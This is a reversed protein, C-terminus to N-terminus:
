TAVKTAGDIRWWGGEVLLFLVFFLLYQPVVINFMWAIPWTSFACALGTMLDSGHALARDFLFKTMWTFIALVLILAFLGGQLGVALYTNDVVVPPTASFRSNQVLGTGFLASAAGRMWVSGWRLWEEYRSDMSHISGLHTGDVFSALAPALLVILAAVALYAPLVSMRYPRTERVYLIFLTCVSFGVCLYVARTLTSYAAALGALASLVLLIQRPGSRQLAAALCFPVFFTLFAGFTLASSFLSFARIRGFFNWSHVEFYGGSSKTAILPNQLGFQLLGLVIIVVGLCLISRQALRGHIRGRESFCFPSILFFFYLADYSVSLRILDIDRVLSLYVLDLFFYTVTCGWLLLMGAPVSLRGRLLTGGVLALAFTLKLTVSPVLVHDAFLLMQVRPFVANFILMLCLVYAALGLVSRLGDPPAPHGYVVSTAERPFRSEGQAM